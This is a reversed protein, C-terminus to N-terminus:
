ITAGQELQAALRQAAEALRRNNTEEALAALTIEVPLRNAAAGGVAEVLTTLQEDHLTGAEDTAPCWLLERVTLGRAELERRAAEENAATLHGLVPDGRAGEAHYEYVAM